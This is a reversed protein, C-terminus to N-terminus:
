KFKNASLTKKNNKVQINFLLFLFLPLIEEGEEKTV